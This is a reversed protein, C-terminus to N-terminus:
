IITRKIILIIAAILLIGIVVYIMYHNNKETENIQTTNKEEIKNEDKVIKETSIQERYYTINEFMDNKQIDEGVTTYYLGYKLPSYTQIQTAKTYQNDKGNIWGTFWTWQQSNHKKYGEKSVEYATKGNFFELPIDYNMIIENKQYLHLYIKKVEWTGYKNVSESDYNINNTLKIAKELCYTNLIHQGHGYEGKEDHGVIVQAKFRRIMEVQFRIVDDEKIGVKEINKIAGELSKSYSDPILGTIPYNRIGVTYLGHLQEHLRSPNDNHHALYVVQVYAGRAIYTPMLGLFFLQEDDSHTSFLILDAKECPEEWIEVFTPIEGDGLVHIDAIKVNENYKLQVENTEGIKEKVNIYEHLFGNEGIKGEKDKASITGEKSMLEYIIYIGNIKDASKINIESDKSIALYTSEKNDLVRQNIKKSDLTIECKDTIEAANSIIPIMTMIFIILFIRAIKKM